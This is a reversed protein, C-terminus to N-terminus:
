GLESAMLALIGDVRTNLRHDGGPVIWLRKKRAALKAHFAVSSAAPVTDDLEGHVVLTPATIAGPLTGEDYRRADARAAPSLELDSVGDVTHRDLFGLAPAILCLGLVLEHSEAAVWAAVLGGLSSGVLVAPGSVALVCRADACLETLTLDEITGSSEGHGRFDFRWAARGLQRARAFLAESKEGRRVSRLGHLYVYPPGDGAVHDAVVHQGEAPVLVRTISSLSHGESL